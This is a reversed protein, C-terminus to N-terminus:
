SFVSSYILVMRLQTKDRLQLLGNLNNGAAKALVKDCQLQKKVTNVHFGWDKILEDFIKPYVAIYKSTVFGYHEADPICDPAVFKNKHQAYWDQLMQKIRHTDSIEECDPLQDLVNGYDGDSGDLFTQSFLQNATIIVAMYHLQREIKTSYRSKLQQLTNKYTQFIVEQHKQLYYLWDDLFVGYNKTTIETIEEAFESSIIQHDIMIEVVRRKSGGNSFETTMMREANTLLAGRLQYTPMVTLTVNGRLKGVGNGFGMILDHLIPKVDENNATNLDDVIIPLDRHAAMYFELGSLSTKSSPIVGPTNPNGFLSYLLKSLTSKGSNAKGYLHVHINECGVLGVLFSSLVTGLAVNTVPDDKLRHILPILAQQKGNCSFDQLLAQTVQSPLSCQKNLTTPFLFENNVWGPQHYLTKNPILESNIREFKRLYDSLQRCNWQDVELGKNVLNILKSSRFHEKTATISKWDNSNLVSLTLYQTDTIPEYLRETIMMISDFKEEIHNDQVIDLTNNKWNPILNDPFQVKHIDLPCRLRLKKYEKMSSSQKQDYLRQTLLKKIEVQFPKVQQKLESLTIGAAKCCSKFQNVLETNETTELYAASRLIQDTLEGPSAIYSKINITCQKETLDAKFTSYLKADWHYTSNYGSYKEAYSCLTKIAILADGPEMDEWTTSMDVDKGDNYRSDSKSWEDIEEYPLQLDKWCRIVTRWETRSLQIVPIYELMKRARIQDQEFTFM